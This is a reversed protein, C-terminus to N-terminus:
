VVLYAFLLCLEDVHVSVCVIRVCDRGVGYRQTYECM